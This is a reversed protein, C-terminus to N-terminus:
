VNDEKKDEKKFKPIFSHGTKRYSKFKEPSASNIQVEESINPQKRIRLVNWVKKQGGNLDHEM